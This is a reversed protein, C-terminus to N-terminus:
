HCLKVKHRHRKAVEVSQVEHNSPIALVALHDRRLLGGSLMSRDQAVVVKDIDAVYNGRTPIKPQANYLAAFGPRVTPRDHDRVSVTPRIQEFRSKTLLLDFRYVM